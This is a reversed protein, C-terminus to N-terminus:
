VGQEFCELIKPFDIPFSSSQKKLIQQFIIAPQIM